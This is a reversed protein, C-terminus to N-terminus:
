PKPLKATLDRVLRAPAGANVTITSRDEIGYEDNVLTIEHEGATLRLERVPTQLGTDKGDVLIRCPPKANIMVVGEGGTMGVPLAQPKKAIPPKAAPAPAALAPMEIEAPEPELPTITVVPAPAPAPASAPGPEPDAAPRSWFGIAIALVISVIGVLTAEVVPAFNPAPRPRPRPPEAVARETGDLGVRVLTGWRRPTALERVGLALAEELSLKPTARRPRPKEPEVELEPREFRTTPAGDLDLPRAVPPLMTGRALRAVPPPSWMPVTTPTLDIFQVASPQRFVRDTDHM